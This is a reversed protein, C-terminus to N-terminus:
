TRRRPAGDPIQGRGPQRDCPHRRRAASIPALRVASGSGLPSRGIFARPPRRAQTPRGASFSRSTGIKRVTSPPRPGRAAGPRRSRGPPQPSTLPHSPAASPVTSARSSCTVSPGPPAPPPTRCGASEGDVGLDLDFAVEGAVFLAAEVAEDLFREGVHHLVRVGPAGRHAGAATVPHGLDLDAVVAGAEVGLGRAGAAARQAHALAHRHSTPRQLDVGAGTDTGPDRRRQGM